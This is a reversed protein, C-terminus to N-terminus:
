GAQSSFITCNATSTIFLQILIIYQQDVKNVYVTYSCVKLSLSDFISAIRKNEEKKKVIFNGDGSAIVTAAIATNHPVHRDAPDATTAAAESEVVVVSLAIWGDIRLRRVVDVSRMSTSAFTPWSASCMLGGGCDFSSSGASTSASSKTRNNDTSSVIDSDSDIDM